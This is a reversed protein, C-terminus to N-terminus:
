AYKKKIKNNKMHEKEIKYLISKNFNKKPNLLKENKDYIKQDIKNVVTKNELQYSSYLFNEKNFILSNYNNGYINESLVFKKPKSGFITNFGDFKHKKQNSSSYRSFLSPFIDITEMLNNKKNKFNKNKKDKIMFGVNQHNKYLFNSTRLDREFKTGHDGMLIITFDDYKNKELYQYLYSIRQDLLKLESYLLEEEYFNKLDHFKKM